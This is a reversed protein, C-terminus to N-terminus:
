PLTKAASVYMRDFVVHVSTSKGRAVVSSTGDAVGSVMVPVAVAATTCNVAAAALV